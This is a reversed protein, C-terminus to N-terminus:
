NAKKKIPIATKGFALSFFPDEEAYVPLECVM